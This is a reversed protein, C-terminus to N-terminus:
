ELSNYLFSFMFLLFCVVCHTDWLGLYSTSVGMRISAAAYVDMIMMFGVSNVEMHGWFRDRICMESGM